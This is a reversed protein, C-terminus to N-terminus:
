VGFTVGCDRKAAGALDLVSPGLEDVREALGPAAPDDGFLRMLAAFDTLVRAEGPPTVQAARDAADAYAHFADTWKGTSMSGAPPQAAALDSLAACREDGGAAAATTESGQEDNGCGGLVAVVVLAALAAASIHYRPM